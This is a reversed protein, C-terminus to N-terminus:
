LLVPHLGCPSGRRPIKIYGSQGFSSGWSTKCLWYDINNETGYDLILVKLQLSLEPKLCSYVGSKYSLFSSDATDMKATIIGQNDIISKMQEETAPEKQARVLENGETEIMPWQFGFTNPNFPKDSGDWIGMQFSVLGQDYLLNHAEVKAKRDLLIAKAQKEEQPSAYKKNFKLKFDDFNEDDKKQQIISKITDGGFTNGGANIITLIALGVAGALLYNMRM